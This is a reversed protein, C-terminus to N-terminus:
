AATFKPKNGSSWSTTGLDYDTRPVSSKFNWGSLNQNFKAAGYFTGNLNSVASVSWLAIPSNFVLCDKFMNAMNTVRTPWWTNLSQNFASCGNFLSSFNTVNTVDWEDVPQNFVICGNFMYDLTRASPKVLHNVPQNFAECNYFAQTFDTVKSTDWDTLPQNFKPCDRLMRYLSTCNEWLTMPVRELRSCALRLNSFKFNKWSRVRKVVNSSISLYTSSANAPINLYLKATYSPVSINGASSSVSLKKNVTQPTYGYTVTVAASTRLDFTGVGNMETLDFELTFNSDVPDPDLDVNETTLGSNGLIINRLM